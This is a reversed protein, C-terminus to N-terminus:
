LGVIDPKMAALAGLLEDKEKQQVGAGDLAKVLDEVTATFDADTIKMGTHTTKMDKGTYKTDGGTANSIQEVLMQKLHPIDTKAFYHNIRTDAAVNAVFADVVVTIADKGGLREYLSKEAAMEPTTTTTEKKAGGGCAALSIVALVTLLKTQIRM